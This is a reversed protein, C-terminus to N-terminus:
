TMSNIRNEAIQIYDPNLEIGVYNRNNRKAVMGTTGVGM